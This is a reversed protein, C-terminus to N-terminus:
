EQTVAVFVERATPHTFISNTEVTESVIETEKL